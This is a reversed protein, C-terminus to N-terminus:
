KKQGSKNPGNKQRSKALAVAIRQKDSPFDRQAEKSGMYREVFDQRSEGKKREPM